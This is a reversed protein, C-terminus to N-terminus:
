LKDTLALMNERKKKEVMKVRKSFRITTPGVVFYICGKKLLVSTKLRIM